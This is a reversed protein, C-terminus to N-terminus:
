KVNGCYAPYYPYQTTLRCMCIVNPKQEKGDVYHFPYQEYEYYAVCDKGYCEKFEGSDDKRFPCKM